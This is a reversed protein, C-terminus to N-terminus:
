ARRSGARARWKADWNRWQSAICVGEVCTAWMARMSDPGLRHRLVSRVRHRLFESFFARASPTRKLYRYNYIFYSEAHRALSKPGALRRPPHDVTAGAVFQITCGEARLRDRFAVDELHPHQFDEDFGGFATWLSRRVMMNCAWLNGGTENIPAHMLPTTIGARCTIRGEYVDVDPRVAESYAALLDGAPEVDDDLFVLFDGTAMSAGHNRNAAPGRQPGETWRAFSFRAALLMRTTESAGDDTVIVEAGFSAVQPALLELCRALTADRFRTPIVISFLM